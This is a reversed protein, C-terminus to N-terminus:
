GHRPRNKVIEIANCVALTINAQGQSSNLNVNTIVEGMNTVVYKPPLTNLALAMVDLVCRDCTCCSMQKMMTECTHRVAQEMKNILVVKAM